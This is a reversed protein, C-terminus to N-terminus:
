WAVFVHFIGPYLGLVADGIQSFFKDILDISNLALGRNDSAKEVTQSRGDIVRNLVDGGGDIKRDDDHKIHSNEIELQLMRKGTESHLYKNINDYETVEAIYDKDIEEAYMDNEDDDDEYSSKEKYHSMSNLAESVKRNRGCYLFDDM